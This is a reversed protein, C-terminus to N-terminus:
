EDGGAAYAERAPRVMRELLCDLHTWWQQTFDEGDNVLVLAHDAGPEGCFCCGFEIKRRM